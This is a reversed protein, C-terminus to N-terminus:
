PREEQSLKEPPQETFTLYIAPRWAGAKHVRWIYITMGIWGMGLVICMETMMKDMFARIPPIIAGLPFLLFAWFLLFWFSHVHWPHLPEANTTCILVVRDSDRLKILLGTSYLRALTVTVLHEGPTASFEVTRNGCVRGVSQGDIFVYLPALWCFYGLSRKISVIPLREDIM